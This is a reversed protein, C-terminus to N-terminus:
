VLREMRLAYRGRGPADFSSGERLKYSSLSFTPRFEFTKKKKKKPKPKTFRFNHERFYAWVSLM